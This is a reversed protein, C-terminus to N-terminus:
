ASKSSKAAEAAAKAASQAIDEPSPRGILERYAAGWGGYFPDLRKAEEEGVSVNDAGRVIVYISAAIAFGAGIPNPIDCAAACGLLGVFVETIGYASRRARRYVYMIWAIAGCALMVVAQRMPDGRAWSALGGGVLALVAAVGVHSGIVLAIAIAILLFVFVPARRPKHDVQDGPSVQNM